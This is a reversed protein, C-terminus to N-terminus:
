DESNKEGLKSHVQLIKVQLFPNKVGGIETDPSFTSMLVTKLARVLVAVYKRFPKVWQDDVALIEVMLTATTMLVSQNQDYILADIIELFDEIVDPINKIVRIAALAAKQKIYGSTSTKMIRKIEPYLERCM